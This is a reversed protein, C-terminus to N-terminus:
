LGPLLPPCQIAQDGCVAETDEGCLGLARSVRQGEWALASKDQLETSSHAASSWVGGRGTKIHLEALDCEHDLLGSM